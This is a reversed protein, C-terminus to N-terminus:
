IYKEMWQSGGWVDNVDIKRVKGTKIRNSYEDHLYKDFDKKWENFRGQCITEMDERSIGWKWAFMAMRIREKGMM